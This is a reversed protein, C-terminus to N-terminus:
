FVYHEIDQEMHPWFFHDRILSTTRNVGQHRMKDHLEELATKRFKEPLVLQTRQATKRWLIGDDDLMLKDWGRILGNVTPGAARWQKAPLRVGSQLHNIVLEIDKDERQAKRIEEKSLPETSATCMETRMPSGQCPVAFSWPVDSEFQAEVVQIMAGISDSSLEETYEPMTEESVTTLRSLAGADINEKGPRYRITFNFNSLEAVWRCGTANM